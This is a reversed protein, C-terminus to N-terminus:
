SERIAKGIDAGSHVVTPVGVSKIMEPVIQPIISPNAVVAGGFSWSLVTNTQRMIEYIANYLDDGTPRTMAFGTAMQGDSTSMEGGGGDPFKLTWHKGEKSILSSGFAKEMISRPFYGPARNDFCILYIDFSM